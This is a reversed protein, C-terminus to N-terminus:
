KMLANFLQLNSIDMSNNKAAIAKLCAERGFVYDHTHLCIVSILHWRLYDYFHHNTITAEVEAVKNLEALKKLYPKAHEIHNNDLCYKLYYIYVDINNQKLNLARNVYKYITDHDKKLFVSCNIIRLLITYDDMNHIINKEDTELTELALLNYKYANEYDSINIYTQGLYYYNRKTIPANSLMDIDKLFRAKSSSGYKNRDQYLIFLDKLFIMNKSTMHEFTEHVPYNTNYRCQKGTKILRIDYHEILGSNDLWKKKVIGFKIDNPIPQITQFLHQKPVQCQFEDGADLLLLYNLSHTSAVFEAFEISENRSLAFNKFTGKKVHLKQKNRKCLKEIIQLTNDTSGTDFVIVHKIHDRISEITVKISNEENKLMLLAGIM